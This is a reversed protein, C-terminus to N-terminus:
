VGLHSCVTDCTPSKLVATACMRTHSAYTTEFRQVHLKSAIIRPQLSHMLVTPSAMVVRTTALHLEQAKAYLTSLSSAVRHVCGFRFNLSACGDNTRHWGPFGVHGAVALQRQLWVPMTYQHILPLACPWCIFSFVSYWTICSALTNYRAMCQIGCLPHHGVALAHGSALRCYQFAAM